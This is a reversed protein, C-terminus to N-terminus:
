LKEFKWTIALTHNGSREVTPKAALTFAVNASNCATVDADCRAVEGYSANSLTGPAATANTWTGGTWSIDSASWTTGGGAPATFNAANAQVSIKLKDTDTPLIISTVTVAAASGATAISVDNVTFTVNAPTTVRAQDSVTATLTTTQSTDPLTVTVQASAAGAAALVLLAGAAGRFFMGKMQTEKPSVM